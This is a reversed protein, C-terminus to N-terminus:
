QTTAPAASATVEAGGLRRGSLSAWTSPPTGLRLAVSMPETTPAVTRSTATATSAGIAVRSTVVLGPSGLSSTSGGCSVSMSRLGSTRMPSHALYGSCSSNRASSSPSAVIRRATRVSYSPTVQCAPPSKRVAPETRGPEPSPPKEASTSIMSSPPLSTGATASGAVTVSM